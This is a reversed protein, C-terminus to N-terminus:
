VFYATEKFLPVDAKNKAKFTKFIPGPSSTIIGVKVIIAVM